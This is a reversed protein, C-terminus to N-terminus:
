GWGGGGAAKIRGGGGESKDGGSAALKRRCAGDGRRRVEGTLVQLDTSARLQKERSWGESGRHAETRGGDSIGETGDNTNWPCMVGAACVEAM